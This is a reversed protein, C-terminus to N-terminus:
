ESGAPCDVWHPPSVGDRAQPQPSGAVATSQGVEASVHQTVEPQGDGPRGVVWMGGASSIM